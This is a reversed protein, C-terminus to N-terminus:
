PTLASDTIDRHLHRGSGLGCALHVAATLLLMAGPLAASLGADSGMATLTAVLARRIGFRLLRM